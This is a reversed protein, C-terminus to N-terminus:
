IIFMKEVLKKTTLNNITYDFLENNIEDYSPHIQNKEAFKNTELILKKPFSTMITDPCQKLDTFFPICKNGLIEYHRM